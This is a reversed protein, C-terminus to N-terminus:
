GKPTNDVVIPDGQPAPTTPAAAPEAPESDDGVKKVLGDELYGHAEVNSVPVPHGVNYARAGDFFIDQVAVYTGYEAAQQAAIEAPTTM